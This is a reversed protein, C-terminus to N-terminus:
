VNRKWSPAAIFFEYEDDSHSEKEYAGLLEAIRQAILHYCLHPRLKRVTEFYFNDCGCFLARPFIIYEGHKGIVTWLKRNSPKFVHLKVRGEHVAKLAQVLRDGFRKYLTLLADGSLKGIDKARKCLLELLELEDLQEAM